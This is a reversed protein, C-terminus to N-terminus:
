DAFIRPLYVKRGGVIALVPPAQMGARDQAYFVVRYAGTETFGNPYTAQYAGANQPDAELRVIPVGLNVTTATPEQFSPAYVAVWIVDLPAAGQTVRAMLTGTAGALTVSAATIRPPSAGFFRAVYRAQAVTGDNVNYVADGNDDMWPSQDTGSVAVAARAQDYCAKLNNSTAVCSLFADSFYAGQASAYANNDRGTSTIVVRGSKAVSDLVSQRDIFSGSHCAEIIINVENVGTSAELSSLWTDLAQSTTLGSGCGDTCFGELWGHDMLYLHLPKGPGVRGAAWTQIAQQLNAPTAPADVESSGDGDADQAAPALYYISDEAFGADHFIRYARNVTNDINTQYGFSENHGAVLIV